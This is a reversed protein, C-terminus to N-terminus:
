TIFFSTDAAVMEVDQDAANNPIEITLSVGESSLLKMPSASFPAIYVAGVELIEGKIKCNIFYSKEDSSVFLDLTSM